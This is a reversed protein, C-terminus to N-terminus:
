QHNAGAKRMSRSRLPRLLRGALGCFTAAWAALAAALFLPGLFALFDLSLVEAMRHTGASYMGLPFVAGWYLPDYRLPHRKYVYRWVGLVLLMPIWWTGTAWYLVTFGKLFPRMSDLLPSASANAVLQAGALTSIAMAGMNIWYPPTLDGPLLRFFTYRYFILSIIWIYLMGGFLWLSLAVFDLAEGRPGPSREALLAALVALSQTAVVALLWGGSIGKDLAPKEAKVTFAAFIAYVLAAWLATAIAGLAVALEGGQSLLMLCQGALVATGAVATFYGPARLHDAMDGFFRAPHRALRLANLVCLALWAAANLGFLALAVTRLGHLQAAVSVIGTAMVMAFNAPSLEALM